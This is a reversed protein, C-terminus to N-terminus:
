IGLVYSAKGLDKINFQETLWLKVSSLTGVDNWILLTDDVYMILFVVKGDEIRKYVCPEEVNQEFGYTRITQDFRINWSRSAQKLGYISRLLKCVKQKKAKLQTDMPNCWTFTKMLIVMLFLQRSMWKGYHLRLPCSYASLWLLSPKRTFSARKRHIDKQWLDLRSPKSKEKRM